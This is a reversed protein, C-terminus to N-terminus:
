PKAEITVRVAYKGREQAYDWVLRPVRDGPAGLELAVQDRVHKMSSRLNDDDLGNSPACRTLTVTFTTEPCREYLGRNAPPFFAHMREREKLTWAHRVRWHGHWGNPSKTRIPAEFTIAASGTASPKGRSVDAKTASTGASPKPTM